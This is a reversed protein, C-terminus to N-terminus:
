LDSASLLAVGRNLLDGTLLNLNVIRQGPILLQASTIFSDVFILYDAAALVQTNLNKTLTINAIAERSDIAQAILVINGEPLVSSIKNSTGKDNLQKRQITM